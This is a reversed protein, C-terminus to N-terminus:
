IIARHHDILEIRQDRGEERGKTYMGLQSYSATGQVVQYLIKVVQPWGESPPSVKKALILATQNPVGNKGVVLLGSFLHSWLIAIKNEAERLFM